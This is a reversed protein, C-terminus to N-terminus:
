TKRALYRILIYLAVCFIGALLWFWAFSSGTGAYGVIVGYYILCLIGIILIIATKM